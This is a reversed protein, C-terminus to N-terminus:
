WTVTLMGALLLLPGGLSLVVAGVRARGRLRYAGTLWAIAAGCLLVLGFGVAWRLHLGAENGVYALRARADVMRAAFTRGAQGSGDSVGTLMVRHATFGGNTAAFTGECRHSVGAGACKTVTLTGRDGHGFALWFPEASVWSFFGAALALVVLMPLGLWPSRTPKPPRVRPRVPRTGAVAGPPPDFLALGYDTFDARGGRRRAPHAPPQPGGTLPHPDDAASDPGAPAGSPTHEAADDPAPPEASAGAPETFGTRGAALAAIPDDDHGGPGTGTM